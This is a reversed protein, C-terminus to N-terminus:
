QNWEDHFPGIIDGVTKVTGLLAPNVAGIQWPELTKQDRVGPGGAETKDPVPAPFSLVM